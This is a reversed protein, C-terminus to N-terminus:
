LAAESMLKSEFTSPASRPWSRASQPSAGRWSMGGDSQGSASILGQRGHPREVSVGPLRICHPERAHEKRHAAATGPSQHAPDPLAASDGVRRHCPYTRRGEAKGFGWPAQRPPHILVARARGRNARPLRPMGRPFEASRTSSGARRGVQPFLAGRDIASRRVGPLISSEGPPGELTANLTPRLRHRPAGQLADEEAERGVQEDARRAIGM